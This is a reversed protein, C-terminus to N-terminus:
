RLIVNILEDLQQKTLTDLDSAGVSVLAQQFGDLVAPDLAAFSAAPALHDDGRCPATGGCGKACSHRPARLM